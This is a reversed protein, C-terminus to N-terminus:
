ADLERRSRGLALRRVAGHPGTVEGHRGARIGGHALLLNAASREGAGLAAFLDQTEPLLWSLVEFPNSGVSELGALEVGVRYFAGAISTDTHREPWVLAELAAATLPPDSDLVARYGSALLADLVPLDGRTRLYQSIAWDGCDLLVLAVRRRGDGPARALSPPPTPIAAGVPARRIEIERTAGARAAATGSAAVLGGRERLVWREPAVAATREISVPAGHAIPIAEYEADPAAGAGRTIWLTGEPADAALRFSLRGARAASPDRAVERERQARELEERHVGELPLRGRLADYTSIAEDARGANVLSFILRIGVAEELKADGLAPTDGLAQRLATLTDLEPDSLGSISLALAYRARVEEPRGGASQWRRYTARAAALDDNMAHAIGQTDFWVSHADEADEPPDAGLARLAAPPDGRQLHRQALAARERAAASGRAPIRQALERLVDEEPEVAARAEIELRFLAPDHPHARGAERALAAAEEARGQALHERIELAAFAAREDRLRSLSVFGIAGALFLAGCALAARKV